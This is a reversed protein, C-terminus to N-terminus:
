PFQHTQIKERIRSGAAFLGSLGEQRQFCDDYEQSRRITKAVILGSNTM